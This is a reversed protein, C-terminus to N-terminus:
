NETTKAKLRNVRAVFYDISEIFNKTKGEFKSKSMRGTGAIKSIKSIKKLCLEYESNKLGKKPYISFKILYDRFVRLTFLPIFLCESYIISLVSPMRLSELVNYSDLYFIFEFAFPGIFILFLLLIMSTGNYNIINKYMKKEQKNM